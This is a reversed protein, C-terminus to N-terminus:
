VVPSLSQDRGTMLWPTSQTDAVKFLGEREKAETKKQKENGLEKEGRGPNKQFISIRGLQLCTVWRDNMCETVDWMDKICNVWSSPLLLWRKLLLRGAGAFLVWWRKLSQRPSSLIQGWTELEPMCRSHGKWTCAGTTLNGWRYCPSVLPRNNNVHVHKTAWNHGARPLWSCQPGDPEETWPTKWALSSSHTATRKGLPDEWDLSPVWM